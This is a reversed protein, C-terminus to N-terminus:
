KIRLPRSRRLGFSKSTSEKEITQNTSAVMEIISENFLRQGNVCDDLWDGYVTEDAAETVIELSCLEPYRYIYHTSDRSGKEEWRNFIMDHVTPLPFQKAVHPYAYRKIRSQWQKNKNHLRQNEGIAKSSWVTAKDLILRHEDRDVVDKGIGYMMANPLWYSVPFRPPSNYGAFPQIWEHAPIGHNDLYVDPLWRNILAPASMAEGFVSDQFRFHNFELGVANFRAAHHKWEPHEKILQQHLATGDPNSGPIAVITIAKLTEQDIRKMLEYLAPVSSVENAHHGTEILITPKYVSLKRASQWSANTEATIEFAYIPNGNFSRSVEFASVGPQKAAEVIREDELDNSYTVKRQVHQDTEYYLEDNKFFLSQVFRSNAEQVDQWRTVTITAKPKSGEVVHMFPLVAGPTNWAIGSRQLGLERYYELTNFYLDEHLAEMSSIREHEFDLKTEAESMTVDLTLSHFLPKTMGSQEDLDLQEHITPLVEQVYYRWFRERDSQVLQKQGDVAVYSTTPYSWSNENIYPVQSTPVDLYTDVILQNERDYAKVEYTHELDKKISVDVTREDTEIMEDIPYLEQLWRIPMEMGDGSEELCAITVHKAEGILPLIEEQIWHFGPKFSSRVHVDSAGQSLWLQKLHDRVSKSESIFVEISANPQWVKDVFTEIESREGENAWKVNLITDTPKEKVDRPIRLNGHNLAYLFSVVEEENGRVLLHQKELNVIAQHDHHITVHFTREDGTIPFQIHTSYMGLKAVYYCTEKFANIGLKQDFEITFDRYVISSLRRESNYNSQEFLENLGEVPTLPWSHNAGESEDLLWTGENLRYQGSRLEITTVSESSAKPWESAFWRLAESMAEKTPACIGKTTIITREGEISLHFSSRTPKESLFDPNMASTEYGLRASFDILGEPLGVEKWGTVRIAIGDPVGDDNCDSIAGDITWFNLLDNM